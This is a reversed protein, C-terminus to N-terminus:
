IGDALHSLYVAEERVKRAANARRMKGYHKGIRYLLREPGSAKRLSSARSGAWIDSSVQEDQMVICPSWAAVKLGGRWSDLADDLPVQPRSMRRLFTTAGRNSILYGVSGYCGGSYNGLRHPGVWINLSEFGRSAPNNQFKILDLRDLLSISCKLAERFHKGFVADDELVVAFPWEAAIIDQMARCHALYCGVEGRSLERGKALISSLPSYGYDSLRADSGIVIGDSFRFPLQLEALRHAIADRRSSGPLSIVLVPPIEDIHSVCFVLFRECM